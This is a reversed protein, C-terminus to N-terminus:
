YDLLTNSVFFQFLINKVIILINCSNSLIELSQNRCTQKDVKRLPFTVEHGILIVNEEHLAAKYGNIVANCECKERKREIVMRWKNADRMVM